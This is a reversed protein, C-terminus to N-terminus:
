DRIDKFEIGDGSIEATQYRAKIGMTEARANQVVARTDASTSIRYFHSARGKPTGDITTFYLNNM